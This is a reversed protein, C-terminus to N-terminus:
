RSSYQQAPPVAITTFCSYGGTYTNATRQPRPQDQFTVRLSHETQVSLLQRVNSFAGTTGPCIGSGAVVTSHPPPDSTHRPRNETRRRAPVPRYCMSGETPSITSGRCYRVLLRFRTQHLYLCFVPLRGASGSYSTPSGRATGFTCRAALPRGRPVLVPIEAPRCGFGYGPVWASHRSGLFSTPAQTREGVRAHESVIATDVPSSRPVYVHCRM